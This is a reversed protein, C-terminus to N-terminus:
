YGRQLGSQSGTKMSWSARDELGGLIRVAKQAQSLTIFGQQLPMVLVSRWGRVAESWTQLVKKFGPRYDSEAQGSDARKRLLEEKAKEPGLEQILDYAEQMTVPTGRMEDREFTRNGLAFDPDAEWKWMANMISYEPTPGAEYVCIRHLTGDPKQFSMRKKTLNFQEFVFNPSFSELVKELKQPGPLLTGLQRQPNSPSLDLDAIVRASGLQEKTWQNVKDAYSEQAQGKANRELRQEDLILM